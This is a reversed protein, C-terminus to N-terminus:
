FTFNFLLSVAGRRMMILHIAIQFNRDYTPMQFRKTGASM